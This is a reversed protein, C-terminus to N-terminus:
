ANDPIHYSVNSKAFFIKNAQPHWAGLRSPQLIVLLRNITRIMAAAIIIAHTAIM